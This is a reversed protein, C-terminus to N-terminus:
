FRIENTWTFARPQNDFTANLLSPTRYGNNANPLILVHYRNFLNAVNLQTSFTYRGIKRTYGAILDFQVQTPYSFLARSVGPVVGNPFYYFNRYKWGLRTTGGLKFGRLKGSSFSYLNTFSASYLPYGVTKEGSLSVPINVPPPSTPDPAIQLASIPLGAVGTLIPGHTPDTSRLVTAVASGTAIAGTIPQPNAWYSSTPTNMLTITLPIAGATGAPRTPTGSTPTAPVWVPTGDAYTVVGDKAYFQDNYLQSYIRTSNITGEVTAASLRMRWNSTPAATLTFELGKSKRDVNVWVGSPGRGNLGSPNIAAQLPGTIRFEENKSNVGYAALSGSFTGSRNAFKLGVEAGLGHAPKPVEGTPGIAVVPPPQNSDSLGVYPRLWSLLAFNAGANFNVTDSVARKRTIAPQTPANGQDFRDYDSHAFRFGVLTDLRRNFWSTTNAGFIGRNILKSQVYSGGALIVGQPNEPTRLAPNPPNTLQRVYNVGNFVSQQAFPNGLPRLVIGDALSWAQVPMITRGNNAAVNPNVIAQFNGDAQFSRYAIESLATRWFDTGIITQSKGAGRFIDHTALASFRIGKSIAPLTLDALSGTMSWSGPLPNGNAGPGRLTIGGTTVQNWYNNYGVAFQTSLWNTWKSDATLQAFDTVTLDSSMRGALSNVNNWDLRGNLLAGGSYTAGTIPDTAGARNSALLYQLSYGNRPDSTPLNATLSSNAIRDFKSQELSLRIVTHDFLNGSFQLYQANIEGGINVRRGREAQNLFAARVAFKSGGNNVDIETQKMGYQNVRFRVGGSRRGFHAMKSTINIVGGAGGAGYLLAQPGRIVEVREVDFNSTVGVGTSGPANYSGVPMFGDRQSLPTSLGRLQIYSTGNLDGPQVSASTGGPDSTSFGAGASYEIILAEVSSAAVDNMFAKTFIDASVPMTALETNFRTISNANLAGYSTDSAETVEFPSLVVTGKSSETPKTQATQASANSAILAVLAAFLTRPSKMPQTRPTPQKQPDSVPEVEGQSPVVEATRKRSVVLAGTAADQAAELATGALM